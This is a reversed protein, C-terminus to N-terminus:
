GSLTPPQTYLLWGASVQDEIENAEAAHHDIFHHIEVIRERNRRLEVREHMDDVLGTVWESSRRVLADERTDIRLVHLDHSSTLMTVLFEKEAVLQLLLVSSTTTAAAATTTTATTTTTTTTTTTAAAAAAAAATTTDIRLVHLDHSATLM